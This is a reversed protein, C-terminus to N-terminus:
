VCPRRHRQVPHKDCLLRLDYSSLQLYLSVSQQSSYLREVLCAGSSIHFFSTLFPRPHDPSALHGVHSKYIPGGDHAMGHVTPGAPAPPKTTTVNCPSISESDPPVLCCTAARARSERTSWAGSGYAFSDTVTSHLGKQCPKPDLPAHSRTPPRCSRNGVHYRQPTPHEGPPPPALPWLRIPRLSAFLRSVRLQFKSRQPRSVHLAKHLGPIVM